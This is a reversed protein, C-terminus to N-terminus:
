WSFPLHLLGKDRVATPPSRNPSTSPHDCVVLKMPVSKCRAIELQQLYWTGFSKVGVINDLPEAYTDLAIDDDGVDSQLQIKLAFQKHAQASLDGRNRHRVGKFGALGLHREAFAWGLAGVDSLTRHAPPHM